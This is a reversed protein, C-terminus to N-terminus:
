PQTERPQPVLYVSKEYRDGLIGEYTMLVDLPHLSAALSVPAEFLVGEDKSGFAMGRTYNSLVLGTDVPVGEQRLRAIVKAHTLAYPGDHIGAATGIRFQMSHVVAVGPGANRLIVRWVLSDDVPMEIASVSEDRRGHLTILYPQSSIIFQTQLITLTLLTL